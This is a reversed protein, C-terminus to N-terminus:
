LVLVSKCQVISYQQELCMQEIYSPKLKYISAFTMVQHM